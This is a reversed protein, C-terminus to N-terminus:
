PRPHEGPPRGGGATVGLHGGLHAAQRRQNKEGADSGRQGSTRTAKVTQSDISGASPESEKGVAQRVRSRLTDHIRQWLGSRRWQHFYDRVTGEPPFDHPLASWACGTRLVYEIANLVERFNTKRPAGVSFPRPLMPELIAWETDSLDSPYPQRPPADM